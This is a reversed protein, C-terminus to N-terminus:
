DQVQRHEAASAKHLLAQILLPQLILSATIVVFALCQFEGKYPFSEPLTLILAASVPGRLGSLMITTQWFLSLKIRFIRLIGFGGYVIIMRSLFLLFVAAMMSWLTVVFEHTGVAVGLMFFLFGTLTQAIYDWFSGMIMVKDTTQKDPAASQWSHAYMLAAMLVCIVGSVRLFEEALIFSGYALIISMSTTFFIHHEHWIRLIEAGLRGLLLGIPIAALVAWGLGGLTHFLNFGGGELALGTIVSFVVVTTGDNFLSEGEVILNLREPLGFRQFISVVAAPDSAGIAAGLVLGPLLPIDLIWSMSWGFLVATLVVGPLALYSIELAEGKLAAPRIKRGSAFILLPLIGVLIVGPSFVAYPTLDFATFKATLGAGLGIILTWAEAPLRSRRSYHAIGTLLMLLLCGFAILHTIDQLQEHM